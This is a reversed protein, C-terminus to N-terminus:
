VAVEELMDSLATLFTLTSPCGNKIAKIADEIVDMCKGITEPALNKVPQLQYPTVGFKKAADRDTLEQYMQRKYGLRFSRLLLSLLRIPSEKENILNQALMMTEKGKGSLIYGTLAFVSTQDSEPVFADITEKKIIESAYCLQKCWTKMQYLDVDDDILYGSRKILYDMQSERIKCDNKQILRCLLKKLQDESVKDLEMVLGQQKAISYAKTRKDLKEPIIVLTTFSPVGKKLLDMFKDDTPLKEPFVTIKQEEEFIPLINISEYVERGFESFKISDGALKKAENDILYKEKGSLIYIM